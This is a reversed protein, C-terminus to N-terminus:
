AGQVTTYTPWVTPTSRYWAILRFALERSAAPVDSPDPQCPRDLWCHITVIGGPGILHLLVEQASPSGELTRGCRACARARYAVHGVPIDM